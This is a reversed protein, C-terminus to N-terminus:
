DQPGSDVDSRQKSSRSLQSQYPKTKKCMLGDVAVFVRYNQGNYPCDFFTDLQQYEDKLFM